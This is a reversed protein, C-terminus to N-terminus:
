LTRGLKLYNLMVSFSYEAPEPAALLQAGSWPICCGSPHPVSLYYGFKHASKKDVCLPTNCHPCRYSHGVEVTKVVYTIQKTAVIKVRNKTHFYLPM